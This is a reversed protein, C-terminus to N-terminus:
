FSFAQANSRTAARQRLPAPGGDQHAIAEFIIAV